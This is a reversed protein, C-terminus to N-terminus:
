KGGRTNKSEAKAVSETKQQIKALEAKKVQKAKALQERTLRALSAGGDAKMRAAWMKSLSPRQTPQDRDIGSYSGDWRGTM